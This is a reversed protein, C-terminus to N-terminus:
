RGIISGDSGNKRERYRIIMDFLKDFIKQWKESFTRQSVARFQTLDTLNIREPHM